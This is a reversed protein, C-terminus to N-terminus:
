RMITIREYDEKHLKEILVDKCKSQLISKEIDKMLSESVYYNVEKTKVIYINKESINVNIIYSKNPLQEFITSDVVISNIEDCTYISKQTCSKLSFSFLSFILLSFLYKM